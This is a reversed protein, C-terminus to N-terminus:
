SGNFDPDTPPIRRVITKFWRAISYLIIAYAIQTAFTMALTASHQTEPATHLYALVMSLTYKTGLLLFALKLHKPPFSYAFLFFYIAGLPYTLRDFWANRIGPSVAYDIKGFLVDRIDWGLLFATFVFVCALGITLVWNSDITVDGPQLTQSRQSM